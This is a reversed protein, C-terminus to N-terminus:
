RADLAYCAMEEANRVYLRGHAIVPHSWTKSDLAQFRGLEKHRQPNAALLIAQGEESIVLLLAQDPLLMVQGRGYRGTRWCGKGTALDICCFVGLDFGYAHGQHVVFDPFEPRLDKSSWVPTTKWNPGDQAVEILQVGAGEVAGVLLRTPGVAHPQVVRPAGEWAAGTHWLKAGTAPDVATLGHDSLIVCQSKGAITTLQPSSYSSLGAPASWALEGNEARYALLDKDGAGGAFVIVLGDVVLPSGSFGWMPAKAGSDATIRRMWHPRGTAADLCNLISTGGLAYIRGDAFTPTARPGAGSVAEWFRAADEHVWVQEGTVADYCVITEQEGRQEQTFLRGNIVIVSSWAPGVRHRWLQKPPATNWNTAITVGRIVGDREPGRFAPWDGADPASTWGTVSAAAAEDTPNSPSQAKEQLFLDEAAPSWRWRVDAHLDADIGEVRVLAFSGWTLAAVVFAGLRKWAFPTKTVVIMWLAWATLVVPLGTTLLGFWGISPHCFPEVILGGVMLSFGYLRYSLPIGRNRWWWGMFLLVLLAASAMAYLFGYFYPKELRGVVINVLWFLAVLALAPWLCVPKTPQPSAPTRPTVLALPM